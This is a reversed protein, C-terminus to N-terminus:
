PEVKGRDGEVIPTYVRHFAAGELVLNGQARRQLDLIFKEDFQVAKRLEPRAMCFAVLEDKSTVEMALREAFTVGAPRPAQEYAAVLYDAEEQAAAARALAKDSMNHRAQNQYLTAKAVEADARNELQERRRDVKTMESSERRALQRVRKGYYKGLDHAFVSELGVLVDIVPKYHEDIVKKPESFEATLERRDEELRKRLNRLNRLSQGAGAYSLDNDIPVSMVENCMRLARGLEDMQQEPILERVDHESM